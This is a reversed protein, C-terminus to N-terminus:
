MWLARLFAQEIHFVGFGNIELLEVIDIKNHHIFIPRFHYYASIEISQWLTKSLFTNFTDLIRFYLQSFCNSQKISLWRRTYNGINNTDESLVFKLLPPERNKIDATKITMLKSTAESYNSTIPEKTRLFTPLKETKPTLQIM